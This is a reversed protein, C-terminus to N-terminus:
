RGAPLIRSHPVRQLSWAGGSGPKWPASAPILHDETLLPFFLAQDDFTIKGGSDEINGRIGAITEPETIEFQVRGSSDVQCDMSFEHLIDGYDATVEAQFSCAQAALMNDRFTMADSLEEPKHSCACLTFVLLITCCVCKM